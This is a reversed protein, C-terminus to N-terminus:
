KNDLDDDLTAGKVEKDVFCYINSTCKFWSFCMYLIITVEQMKFSVDQLVASHVTSNSVNLGFRRKKLAFVWDFSILYM